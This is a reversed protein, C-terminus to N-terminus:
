EDRYEEVFHEIRIIQVHNAGARKAPILICPKMRDPPVTLNHIVWMGSSRVPIVWVAEEYLVMYEVFKKWFPEDFVKEALLNAQKVSTMGGLVLGRPLLPGIGPDEKVHRLLDEGNCMAWVWKVRKSEYGFAPALTRLAKAIFARRVPEKMGEKQRRIFDEPSIPKESM